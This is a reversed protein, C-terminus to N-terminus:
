SLNINIFDSHTIMKVFSTGLYFKFNYKFSLIEGM